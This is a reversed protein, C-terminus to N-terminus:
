DFRNAALRWSLTIIHKISTAHLMFWQKIAPIFYPNIGSPTIWTPRWFAPIVECWLTETVCHWSRIRISTKKCLRSQELCDCLQLQLLFQWWNLHSTNGLLVCPCRLRYSHIWLPSGVCGKWLWSTVSIFNNRQMFWINLLFKGTKIIIRANYLKCMSLSWLPMCSNYSNNLVCCGWSSVPGVCIMKKTVIICNCVKNFAFILVTHHVELYTRGLLASINWHTKMKTILSGDHTAYVELVCFYIQIFGLRKYMYFMSKANM